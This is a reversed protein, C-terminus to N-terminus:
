RQSRGVALTGRRRRRCPQLGAAKRARTRGPGSPGRLVHDPFQNTPRDDRQALEWLIDLVDPLYRIHYGVGRLLPPLERLIDDYTPPHMRLFVTELDSADEVSETPNNIARRALALTPEPAFHAVRRLLQLLRRRGLIGAADFEADVQQWVADTLRPADAHDHRM